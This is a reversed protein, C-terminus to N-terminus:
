DDDDIANKEPSCGTSHKGCFFQSCDALFARLASQMMQNLGHPASMSDAVPLVPPFDHVTTARAAKLAFVTTCPSFPQATRRLFDGSRSQTAIAFKM